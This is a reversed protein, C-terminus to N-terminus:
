SLGTLAVTAWNLRFIRLGVGQLIGTDEASGPRSYLRGGVARSSVSFPRRLMLLWREPPDRSRVGWSGRRNFQCPDALVAKNRYRGQDLEGLKLPPGGNAHPFGDGSRVLRPSGSVRFRQCRLAAQDPCVM